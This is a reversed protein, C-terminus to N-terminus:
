QLRKAVEYILSACTHAYNELSFEFDEAANEDANDSIIKVSAFPLGNAHAVHAIAAAEMDVCSCGTRAIIDDKVVADEVFIDGSAVTGEIFNINLLKLSKAALERLRDDTFFGKQIDKFIESIGLDFDHYVARSVLVASSAYLRPDCGGALGTNFVVDIPFRSILAETAMAACVKGIGSITLYVTHGFIEVETIRTSGFYHEKAGDWGARIVEIEREMACVVGINM